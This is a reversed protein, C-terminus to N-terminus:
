GILLLSVAMITTIHILNLQSVIQSQVKVLHTQDLFIRGFEITSGAESALAQPGSSQLVFALGDSDNATNEIYFAMELHFDRTFSTPNNFWVAGSSNITTDNIQVYNHGEVGQLSGAKGATSIMVQNIPLLLLTRRLSRRLSQKATRAVALFNRYFSAIFLFIKLMKKM